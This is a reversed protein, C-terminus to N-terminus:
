LSVYIPKVLDIPEDDAHAKVIGNVSRVVTFSQVNNLDLNDYRVQPNVNTNGTVSISRVGALPSTTLSSDTADIHWAGPEAVTTRWVKARLSTGEVQFRLNYFTGAVYTIGPTFTSGVASEVAAVRKRIDLQLSGSTNFILRAHYLNDGSSYRATLGGTLAAGTATASVAIGVTADFDTAVYDVFTRRSVAVSSLTHSGYGSGVAYDGAVGGGTSWVKNSDSTGWGNAVTRGFADKLFSICATAQVTEGGVKFLSPFDNPYTASDAWRAANVPVEVDMNTATDTVAGALKSVTSGLKFGGDLFGTAWPEGPSCTFTIKWASPGIEETYGQILLDVDDPGYADPLNTIRILDGVDLRLIDDVMEYVRPNGLDLTIQKYRLGNFTGLAMLWNALQEPQEDDELNRTYSSDYRGVGNPFEQISMAGEELIGVGFGGRERQVTVDNETYRDDDIPKFPASIVGASFDLTLIPAQNYIVGHSQFILERADRREGLFGVDSKACSDLADMLKERGQSGMRTEIESIGAVSLTAGAETAVRLAREGAREGPFGMMAQYMEDATPPGPDLLDPHEWLTLYGFSQPNSTVGDMDWGYRVEKINGIPGGGSGIPDSDRLVGDIYLYTPLDVARRGTQLRIHHPQDDFIGASTVSLLLSVSSTEMERYTVTVTVQDSGPVFDMRLSVRPSGAQGAGTDTLIIYDGDGVGNRVIDIYTDDVVGSTAVRNSILVGDSNTPALAVPEIWDAIEGKTWQIRNSGFSLVQTMTRGGPVISTAGVSSVGDTMPWCETPNNAKIFRLLASDIPKVGADLRRMIGTPSISSFRDNGSLDREPPWAPVEGELRVHENSLEATSRATWLFGTNDTVTTDGPDAVSFDLDVTNVGDIGNWLQFKYINGVLSSDSLDTLSGVELQANGNFVSTTGTLVTPEGLQRWVGDISNSYYFTSTNGGAGNNVDLTARIAVRQGNYAPVPITSATAIRAALTGDPSWMFLIKGEATLLLGWSRNNGSIAYKGAIEYAHVWDTPALEVRVDIDTTIDQAANDPTTFAETGGALKLWAGGAFVSHRIPTNRGILGYLPSLPDRPSYTGNRNDVVASAASPDARTSESNRGRTITLASTDRMDGTIDNWVGNYFLETKRQPPLSM